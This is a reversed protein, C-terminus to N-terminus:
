KQWYQNANLIIKQIEINYPYKFRIQNYKVNKFTFINRKIYNIIDINILSKFCILNYM